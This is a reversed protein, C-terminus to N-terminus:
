SEERKRGQGLMYSAITMWIGLAWGAAVCTIREWQLAVVAIAVILLLISLAIAFNRYCNV